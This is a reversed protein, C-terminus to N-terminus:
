LTGLEQRFRHVLSGADLGHHRLVEDNQGCVPIGEVGFSVVRPRSEKAELGAITAALMQGQGGALLHNDLTFVLRMGRVRNALWKRDVCNLWPLNVVALALGEKDRLEKAAIVAQSLLVPGYSIVIAADGEALDIGQGFVLQYNAPLDYPLDCPVSVLRVYTSGPNDEVAWRLVLRAEGETCPEILTLGPVAALASIDRVAQHSHGPPGPILGALSGVYIIRKQETANNFIHENPRTSLFCAFSHVVPLKGALAMGGAMSVMDQEAIGCEVFREPYKTRFPIQGTDLVLDADLSVLEPHEGAIKVLENGYASVLRQPQKFGPRPQPERFDLKVLALGIAKLDRDIAARLEEVAEEYDPASPAGSHFKYFSGLEDTVVTQMKKVGRGKVTDAILVKPRDVVRAFDDFVGKLAAFDHGDARAVHWGFAAFKDELRGLNSVDKVWTDSQIKNHDVIVTLEGFGGNATPQLSEWIQGEQLEGDGTILYIRGSKGDLRRAHAIGRAKSIGMGLSGTNTVMRPISADPHGPLGDLRRLRHILDFELDGLGTLLSYFAPADHGKSSFLVDVGDDWGQNPLRLVQLWLYTLIDMSSFSSGVHGSGAQAIMYLCNIRFLNALVRCRDLPNTIDRNLRAIEEKCLYYPM